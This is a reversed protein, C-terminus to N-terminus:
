SAASRLTRCMSRMFPSSTTICWRMTGHRVLVTTAMTTVRINADSAFWNTYDNIGHRLGDSGRAGAQRATHRRQQPHGARDRSDNCPHGDAALFFDIRPLSAPVERGEQNVDAARRPVDTDHCILVFSKTDDPV